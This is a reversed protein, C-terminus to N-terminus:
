REGELYASLSRLKDRVFERYAPGERLTWQQLGDFLPQWREAYERAFQDQWLSETEGHRQQLAALATRQAEDFRELARGFLQMREFTEDLSM